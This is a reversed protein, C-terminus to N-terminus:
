GVVKAMVWRATDALHKEILDYIAKGVVSDLTTTMLWDRATAVFSIGGLLYMAAFFMVLGVACKAVGLFLGAVKDVRDIARHKEKVRRILRQLGWFVLRVFVYVVVLCILVCLNADIKVLSGIVGALPKAAFIAAVLSATGAVFGIIGGM